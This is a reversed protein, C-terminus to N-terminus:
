GEEDNGQKFAESTAISTAIATTLLANGEPTTKLLPMVPPEGLTLSRIVEPHIEHSWSRLLHGMRIVLSIFRRYILHRLSHLWTEQMYPSLFIQQIKPGNM